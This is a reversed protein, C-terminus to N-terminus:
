LWRDLDAAHFLRTMLGFLTSKGAGNPRFLACFEGRCVSFGM